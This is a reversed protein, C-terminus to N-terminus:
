ELAECSEPPDMYDACHEETYDEDENSDPANVKDLIQKVRRKRRQRAGRWSPKPPQKVSKQKIAM